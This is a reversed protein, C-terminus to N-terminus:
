SGNGRRTVVPVPVRMSSWSVGLRGEGAASRRLVITRVCQAAVLTILLTALLIPGYPIQDAPEEILPVANGTTKNDTQNGNRGALGFQPITGTGGPATLVTVAEPPLGLGPTRTKWEVPYELAMNAAGPASGPREPALVEYGTPVQTTPVAGGPVQGAPPAVQGPAGPVAPNTNPSTPAPQVPFVGPPSGPGPNPPGGIAAGTVSGVVGCTQAITTWVTPLLAELVPALVPLGLLQTAVANAITDGNIMVEGTDPVAGIPIPPLAAWVPRFLLRTVGLPDLPALAALIPPEVAAPSLTIPQGPQGVVRASCSQLVVAEPAASAVGAGAMAGSAVMLVLSVATGFRSLNRTAM